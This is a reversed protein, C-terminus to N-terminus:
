MSAVLELATSTFRDPVRADVYEAAVASDYEAGTM